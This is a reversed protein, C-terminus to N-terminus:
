WQRQLDRSGRFNQLPASTPTQVVFNYVVFYIMGRCVVVCWRCLMMVDGVLGQLGRGQGTARQRRALCDSVSAQQPPEVRNAGM